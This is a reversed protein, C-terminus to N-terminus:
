ALMKLAKQLGDAISLDDFSRPFGAVRFVVLSRYVALDSPFCPQVSCASVPISGIARKSIFVDSIAAM